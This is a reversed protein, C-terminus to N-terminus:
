YHYVLRLWGGFGDDVGGFGDGGSNSDDSSPNPIKYSIILNIISLCL